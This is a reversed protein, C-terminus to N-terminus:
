ERSEFYELLTRVDDSMLEWEFLCANWTYWGSEEIGDLCYDHERMGREFDLVSEADPLFLFICSEFDTVPVIGNDKDSKWMKYTAPRPPTHALAEALTDHIKGDPTAFRVTTITEIDEPRYTKM